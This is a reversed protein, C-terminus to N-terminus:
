RLTQTGRADGSASAPASRGCALPGLRGRLPRAGPSLLIKEGRVGAGSVINGRPGTVIAVAGMLLVALRRSAPVKETAGLVDDHDIGADPRETILALARTMM